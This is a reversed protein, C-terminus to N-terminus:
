WRPVRAWYWDIVLPGWLLAILGGAVLFPGFPLSHGRRLGGTALLGAGILTGTAAALFLALATGAPGLWAGLAALLKVDGDGLAPRGALAGGMRQIVWLGLYGSAAGYIAQHSEVFVGAASALLGSWLLTGTLADPLLQHELDILFLCLALWAFVTAAVCATTFGFRAAFLVPVLAAAIEVVPYRWGIRVRCHSCRGRLLVFSLLPINDRWRIQRGCARCSSPPFCLDYRPPGNGEEEGDAAEIMIPLRHIVVNLFSGIVLGGIGVLCYFYSEM